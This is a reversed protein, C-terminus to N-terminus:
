TNYGGEITAQSICDDHYGFGMFQSVSSAIVVAEVRVGAQGGQREGTRILARLNVVLRPDLGQSSTTTPAHTTARNAQRKTM